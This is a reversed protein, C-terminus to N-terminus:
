EPIVERLVYYEATGDGTPAVTIRSEGYKTWAGGNPAAAPRDEHVAVPITSLSVQGFYGDQGIIDKTIFWMSIEEKLQSLNTM